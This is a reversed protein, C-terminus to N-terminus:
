ICETGSCKLDTRRRIKFCTLIGGIGDDNNNVLLTNLINLKLEVEV